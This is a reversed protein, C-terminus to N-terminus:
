KDWVDAIAADMKAKYKEVVTSVSVGKSLEDLIEYYPMGPYNDIIDLSRIDEVTKKANNIDDETKFVKEFSSQHPYDYISKIDHIKEFLYLIKDPDKVNKPITLYNPATVFGHYKTAGPAKPTPLFGIDYDKMDKNLAEMEYEAGFYMLTNGQVFFQKPETWDGGEKPRVVNETSLKSFFNLVELTKPNELGSKGDIVFNAGPASGMLNNFSIAAVGWTDRKGDNNTDRNADKAVQAFTDWNWKDDNVYEQLPKMGLKNMLTRNYLIGKASANIGVGFGYGKDKYKSYEETHERVFVKRNSTYEDMPWFMDLKTLSPIMWGRALRVIDGIPEGAILSAAVKDKVQGYDIKIYEINFNHKKKLAELNELKKAGDPTDAKIEEDYWTVYKLVRGNMNFDLEKKSSEASASPTATASNTASEKPEQSSNSNSSCASVMVLAFSSVVVMLKSVKM